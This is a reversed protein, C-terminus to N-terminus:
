DGASDKKPPLVKDVEYLLVLKTIGGVFLKKDVKVTVQHKAGDKVRDSIDFFFSRDYGKYSRPDLIREGLKEGDLWVEASGDVQEFCLVWRSDKRQREPIEIERRYWATGQYNPFGQAQWTAGGNIKAWASDDFDVAHWGERDGKGEPDVAFNWKLTYGTRLYPNVFRGFIDEHKKVEARLKDFMGHEWVVKGDKIYRRNDFVSGDEFSLFFAELENVAAMAKSHEGKEMLTLINQHRVAYDYGAVVGAVRREYPDHGKAVKKAEEISSKLEQLMAQNMMDRMGDGGCAFYIGERAAKELREHYHKMPECAPGFFQKYYLEKEHDLDAYPKRTLWGYFYLIMGQPGWCPHTESHVGIVGFDSKYRRLRDAMTGVIPFPGPWAYFNWYERAIINAKKKSYERMLNVLHLNSQSNLNYLDASYDAYAGGYAAVCILANEPFENIRGPPETHQYYALWAVKRGPLEEAVRKAIRENFIAVRNSMSVGGVGRGLRARSKPDDMATCLECECWHDYDNPELSATLMEPNEKLMRVTYEAVLNQVEPNGLCLQSNEGLYRKGNILAFYEPHTEGDTKPSLIQNYIHHSAIRYCGGLELIEKPQRWFVWLNANFRNRVAWRRFMSIEEMDQPGTKFTNYKDPGYRYAYEPETRRIGEGIKFRSYKPVFEGWPEPRYWRVGLEELFEYAGYLTGRDHLPARGDEPKAVPHLEKSHGGVIRVREHNIDVISEELGLTQPELDDNAPQWGVYIPLAGEGKPKGKSINVEAGFIEGIYHALERAAYGEAPTHSKSLVVEVKQRPSLWLDAASLASSSAFIGAASWLFTLFSTRVFYTTNM